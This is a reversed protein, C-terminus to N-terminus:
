KFIKFERLIVYIQETSMSTNSEYYMIASMLQLISLGKENIIPYTLKENVFRIYDLTNNELDPAYRNIISVVDNLKYKVIYTRLLMYLARVGYRLESFTCFGNDDGLLGKWHNSPVFRINAPNNKYRM